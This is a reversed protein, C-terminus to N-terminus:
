PSPSWTSSWGSSACTTSPAFMRISNRFHFLYLFMIM